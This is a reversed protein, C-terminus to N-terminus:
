DHFGALKRALKNALVADTRASHLLGDPALGYRAAAESLKARKVGAVQCYTAMLCYWHRVPNPVRALTSSQFVMRSDFQSNYAILPKEATIRSFEGVVEAWSPANKVMLNSIGHIDSAVKPIALCPRVLTDLLLNGDFDVVAISVIESMGTLGTTETDVTLGKSVVDRFTTMGM